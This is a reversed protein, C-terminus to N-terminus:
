EQVRSESILFAGTAVVSLGAFAGIVGVSTEPWGILLELWPIIFLAILSLLGLVLDISARIMRADQIIESRMLASGVLDLLGRALLWVMILNALSSASSWGPAMLLSGAAISAIGLIIDMLATRGGARHDLIGAFAEVAGASILVLVFAKVDGINQSAMFAAGSAGFLILLSGCWFTPRRVPLRGAPGSANRQFRVPM